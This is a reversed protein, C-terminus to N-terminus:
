DAGTLWATAEEASNFARTAFGEGPASQNMMPPIPAGEPFLFAFRKVGAASYRNSINKVRWEQVDPGMAHRFRAVDVLIGRAREAEVYSAFLILDAKFDGDTMAATSEKWEIGIIGTGADWLIKLFEGDHLLTTPMSM